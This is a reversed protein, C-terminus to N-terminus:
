RLLPRRIWWSGLTTGPKVLADMVSSIAPVGPVPRCAESGVPRGRIDFPREPADPADVGAGRTPTSRRAPNRAASRGAPHEEGVTYPRGPVDGAGCVGHTGGRCASAGRGCFAGIGCVADGGRCAGRNGTEGSESAARVSQVSASMTSMASEVLVSVRAAQALAREAAATYPLRRPSQSGSTPTLAVVPRERAEEVGFFLASSVRV